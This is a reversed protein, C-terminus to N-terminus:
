CSNAGKRQITFEHCRRDLPTPTPHDIRWSIVQQSLEGAHHVSYLAGYVDLVVQFFPISLKRRRTAHFKADADINSVDNNFSIADVAIPYINRSPEFAQRFAAADTDGAANM